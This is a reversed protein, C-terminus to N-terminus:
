FIGAPEVERPDVNWCKDKWPCYNCPWQKKGDAKLPLRPPLSNPDARYIDLEELLDAIEADTSPDYPIDYEYIGLEEKEVYVMKIGTVNLPGIEVEDGAANVVWVTFNRAAMAYTSAQKMHEVKPLGFKVAVKKTSKVELVQWTGDDYGILGDGHGEINLEKVSVKFEPYFERVGPAAEVARQVIEHLRHGVYFRRKSVKDVPNTVPTARVGYMVQRPCLFMSSPHYKGDPAREDTISEIYKDIAAAVSIM